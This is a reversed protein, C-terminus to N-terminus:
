ANRFSYLGSDKCSDTSVGLKRIGYRDLLAHVVSAPDDMGIVGKERAGAEFKDLNFFLFELYIDIEASALDCCLCFSQRKEEELNV